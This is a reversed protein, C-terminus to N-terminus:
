ELLGAMHCYETQWPQWTACTCNWTTLTANFRGVRRRRCGCEILLDSPLTGVQVKFEESGWNYEIAQDMLFWMNRHVSHVHKASTVEGSSQKVLHDRTPPEFFADHATLHSVTLNGLGFHHSPKKLCVIWTIPTFGYLLCILTRHNRSKRITNISILLSLSNAFGLRQLSLAWPRELGAKSWEEGLFTKRLLRAPFYCPCGHCPGEQFAKPLAALDMNQSAKSSGRQCSCLSFASHTVFLARAVAEQYRWKKKLSAAGCSFQIIRTLTHFNSVLNQAVRM